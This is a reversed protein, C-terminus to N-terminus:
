KLGQFGKTKADHKRQSGVGDYTFGADRIAARPASSRRIPRRELKQVM